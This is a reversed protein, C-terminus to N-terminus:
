IAEHELRKVRTTLVGSQWLILSQTPGLDSRPALFLSINRTPAEPEMKYTTM